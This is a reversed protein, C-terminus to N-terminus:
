GKGGRYLGRLIWRLALIITGITFCAHAVATLVLDGQTACEAVPSVHGAGAQM